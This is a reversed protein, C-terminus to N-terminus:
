AVVRSGDDSSFTITVIALVEKVKWEEVMTVESKAAGDSNSRGSEEMIVAVLAMPDSAM